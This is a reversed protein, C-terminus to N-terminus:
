ATPALGLHQTLTTVILDHDEASTLGSVTIAGVMLGGTLRIPFSGGHDAFDMPDIGREPGLSGGKRRLSEGVQMSSKHLRLVTNSKRRAWHDNDPSAGPLAAHFLVRDPTRINIVVPASAAQAASTLAVGIQWADAETFDPFRLQTEQAILRALLDGSPTQTM